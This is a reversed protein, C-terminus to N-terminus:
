AKSLSQLVLAPPWDSGDALSSPIPGLRIVTSFLAAVLGTVLAMFALPLWWPLNLNPEITVPWWLLASGAVAVVLLITNEPMLM